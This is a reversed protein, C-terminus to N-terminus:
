ANEIEEKNKYWEKMKQFKLDRGGTQVFELAKNVIQLNLHVKEIPTLDQIELIETPLLHLHIALLGTELM